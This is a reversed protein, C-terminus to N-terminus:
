VEEVTITGRTASVTGFSGGSDEARYVNIVFHAVTDPLVVLGTECGIPFAATTDPGVGNPGTQLPYATGYFNLNMVIWNGGNPLNIKFEGDVIVHVTSQPSFGPIAITLYSSGDTAGVIGQFPIDGGPGLTQVIKRLPSAAAETM